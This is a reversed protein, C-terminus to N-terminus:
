NGKRILFLIKFLCGLILILSVLKGYNTSVVFINSSLKKREENSLQNKKILDFKEHTMNKRKLVRSMQIDSKANALFIFDCIKHLKTEFLLPVDLAILSHNINQQIFLNREQNIIPHILKELFIKDSLNSFIIDGLVKKNVSIERDNIIVADPWKLGIKTIIKRNNELVKSVQKDSDFVPIRLKTLMSSITSKGMGISGTIGIIKTM